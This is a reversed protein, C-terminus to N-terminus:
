EATTPATTNLGADRSEAQGSLWSGQGHGHTERLRDLWVESHQMSIIVLAGFKQQRGTSVQEEARSAYLLQFHEYGSMGHSKQNIKKKRLM